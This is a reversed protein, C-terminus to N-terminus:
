PSTSGLNLTCDRVLSDCTPCPKHNVYGCLKRSILYHGRGRLIVSAWTSLRSHPHGAIGLGVPQHRMEVVSEQKRTIDPSCFWLPLVRFCLNQRTKWLESPDRAPVFHSTSVSPKKHM